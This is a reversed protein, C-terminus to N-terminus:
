FAPSFANENGVLKQYTLRKGASGRGGQSTKDKRSKHMFRAKSDILTEDAEGPSSLKEPTDDQM